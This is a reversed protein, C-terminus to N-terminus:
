RAGAEVAREVAVVVRDMGVAAGRGIILGAEVMLHEDRRHRLVVDVVDRAATAEESRANGRVAGSLEHDVEVGVGVLEDDVLFALRWELKVKALWRHPREGTQSPIQYRVWVRRLLEQIDKLAGFGLRQLGDRRDDEM